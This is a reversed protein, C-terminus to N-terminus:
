HFDVADARYGLQSQDIFLSRPMFFFFVFRERRNLRQRKLMESIRLQTNFRYFFARLGEWSFFLSDRWDSRSDMKLLGIEAFSRFSTSECHQGVFTALPDRKAALDPHSSLFVVRKERLLDLTEDQYKSVQPAIPDRVLRFKLFM